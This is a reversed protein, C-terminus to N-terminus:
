RCLDLYSETFAVEWDRKRADRRVSMRLSVPTWRLTVPPPPEGQEPPLQPSDITMDGARQLIRYFSSRLDVEGNSSVRISPNRDQGTEALGSATEFLMQTQRERLDRGSAPPVPMSELTIEIAEHLRSKTVYSIPLSSSLRMRQRALATFETESPAGYTSSTTGQM